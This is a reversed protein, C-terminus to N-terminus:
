DVNYSFGGPGSYTRGGSGGFGGFGPGGGAAGAGAHMGAHGFQDYRKRKEPDSLAEYAGQVEAFKAKADAAKNVDPHYKKALKRYAKTVEKADADRAVGLVEYYDRAM